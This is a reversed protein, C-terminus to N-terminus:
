PPPWLASLDLELEAFPEVRARDGGYPGHVRWGESTAAYVELVRAIPDLLWAHQVGHALYLPLKRLRDVRVTSPSVIECVWDPASVFHAVQFGEAPRPTRYGALDPVVISDGLHLEPEILFRWGGPGGRGRGFAVNLDTLLETASLAHAGSPRPSLELEGALVEAVTHEPADLVDQYSARQKAPEGM